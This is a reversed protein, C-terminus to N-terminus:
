KSKLIKISFSKIKLKFGYLSMYDLQLSSFISMTVNQLSAMKPLDLIFMFQRPYFCGSKRPTGIWALEHKV